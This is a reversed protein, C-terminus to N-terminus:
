CKLSKPKVGTPKPMEDMTKQLGAMQSETLPVKPDPTTGPRVGLRRHHGHKHQIRWNSAVMGTVIGM